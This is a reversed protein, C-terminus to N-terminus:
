HSMGAAYFIAVKNSVYMDSGFIDFVIIATNVSSVKEKGQKHKYLLEGEVSITLKAAKRRIVRKKTESVCEPYKKSVLYAYAEEVLDDCDSGDDVTEEIEAMVRLSIDVVHVYSIFRRVKKEPCPGKKKLYFQDSRVLIKQFYQDPVLIKLPGFNGHGYSSNQVAHTGTCTLEMYTHIHMSCNGTTLNSKANYFHCDSNM